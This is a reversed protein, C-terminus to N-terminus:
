EYQKSLDKMSNLWDILTNWQHSLVNYKYINNANVLLMDKSTAGYRLTDLKEAYRLEVPVDPFKQKVPVVTQCGALFVILITIVLRM